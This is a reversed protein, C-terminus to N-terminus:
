GNGMTALIYRGDSSSELAIEAIRPFGRGLAYTDAETKTGLRHFYVQQYFDVDQKSRESGRPYRTYYFGTGDANWAVSGGATGANVRPIVDGLPKGDATGYVYLDGNESGGRSLSVAVYKGDVSPVYFDIARMGTADLQNPDVIVREFGPADPSALTVLFPQEKPPQRKIAFLVDRRYALSFYRPSPYSLLEKLREYLSARAPLADLYSRAYRNQEASWARVAPDTVDELWRYDDVVTVGHYVDTVPKKPTAPPGAADVTAMILLAACSAACSGPPIHM